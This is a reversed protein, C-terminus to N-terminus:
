GRKGTGKCFTCPIKLTTIGRVLLVKGQECHPCPVNAAWAVALKYADNLSTFEDTPIVATDPHMQMALKRYAQKVEHVDAGYGIDLIRLADDLRM